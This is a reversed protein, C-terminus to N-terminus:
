LSSISAMLFTVYCYLWLEYWFKMLLLRNQRRKRSTKWLLDLLRSKSALVCSGIWIM